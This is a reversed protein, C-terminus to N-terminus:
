YARASGKTPWLGHMKAYMPKAVVLPKGSWLTSDLELRPIRRRSIQCNWVISIWTEFHKPHGVKDFNIIGNHQYLKITDISDLYM